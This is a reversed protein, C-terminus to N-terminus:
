RLSRFVIRSREEGGANNRWVMLVGPEFWVDVTVSVRRRAQDVQLSHPSLLRYSAVMEPLGRRTMTGEQLQITTGAPLWVDTSNTQVVWTGSMRLDLKAESSESWPSTHPAVLVQDDPVYRTEPSQAQVAAPALSHPQPPQSLKAVGAICVVLLISGIMVVTASSPNAPRQVNERKNQSPTPPEQPPPTAAKAPGADSNGRHHEQIVRYAENLERLKESGKARLRADEPFRDPHWVKALDRYSLRVADPSATSPVGLVVFADNLDM